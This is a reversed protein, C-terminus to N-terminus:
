FGNERSSLLFLLSESLMHFALDFSVRTPAMTTTTNRKLNNFCSFSHSVFVTVLVGELPIDLRFNVVPNSKPCGNHFYCFFKSNKPSKAHFVIFM